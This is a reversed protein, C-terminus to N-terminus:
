HLIRMRTGGRPVQEDYCKGCDTLNRNAQIIEANPRQAVVLTM